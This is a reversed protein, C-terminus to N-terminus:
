LIRIFKQVLTSGASELRLTYVGSHLETVDLDTISQVNVGKLVRVTEGIANTITYDGIAEPGFGSVTLNLRQGAVPNPYVDLSREGNCVPTRVAIPDYLTEKGDFDVQLLRYYYTEGENVGPDECYHKSLGARAKGPIRTVPVYSRGDKSRQVEIYNNNMENEIDFEINVLNCSARGEFRTLTIPLPFESVGKGPTLVDDAIDNNFAQPCGGFPLGVIQINVPIIIPACNTSIEGRARLMANGGEGFYMQRNNTGTWTNNSVSYVWDFGAEEIIDQPGDSVWYKSAPFSVQIRWSGPPVTCVFDGAGLAWGVTFIATGDLDICQVNFGAGTLIPNADDTQCQSYSNNVYVSFLLVIMLKIINRM